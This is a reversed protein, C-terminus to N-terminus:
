ARAAKRPRRAGAGRRAKLEALVENAEALGGRLSSRAQAVAKRLEAALELLAAEDGAAPRECRTRVLEAVSVGEREAERALFAKMEPTTLLTVRATKM